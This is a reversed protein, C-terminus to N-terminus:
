KLNRIHIVHEKKDHLNAALKEVKEIKMIEPLFPLDNYLSHLNEPYQADVEFFYDKHGDEIYNELFDKSFQSTDEFWKFDNVPLKQSMAWGYLNDIDLYKLYSSEKEKDFKEM